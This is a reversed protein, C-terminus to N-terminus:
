LVASAKSTDNESTISEDNSSAALLGCLIWLHRADEFSGTLSQYLFAGLFACSFATRALRTLDNSEFTFRCRRWLHVLLGFFAALGILGTQAAVSLFSNHADLLLQRDGSLTQYNVRAADTGTGKGLILNDRWTAAASQWALVRVSVEMNRGGLNFDQGTNATDPSVLVVAFFFISAGIGATLFLAALRRSGKARFAAWHWVAACLAMGGLGASFTFLAALWIGAQLVYAFSRRLWGAQGAFLVLMLSVNLYNCMMNANAFLAHLRPYNGAPLSGFHSLFYNDPQTKFGFYFLAVGASTALITLATGALWAWVVRRLYDRDAAVHITVVALAFLYFEGALKIVSRRPESSFVTSITLALAYAALALLFPDFKVKLQGRAAALAFFFCVALFIFDTAPVQLGGLRLNFPRVLPLSVLLLLFLARCLKLSM